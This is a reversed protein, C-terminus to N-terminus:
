RCRADALVVVVVDSYRSRLRDRHAVRLRSEAVCGLDCIGCLFIRFDLKYVSGVVLHLIFRLGLAEELPHIEERQLNEVAQIEIAEADSLQRIRTPVFEREAMRSGRLRREGAVVEYRDGDLPRVLLPELVGHSRISAALEELGRADFRRRPNTPSAQLQAVPLDRYEDAIVLAETSM